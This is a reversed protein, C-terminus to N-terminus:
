TLWRVVGHWRVIRVRGRGWTVVGKKTHRAIKSRRKVSAVSDRRLFSVAVAVGPIPVDFKM